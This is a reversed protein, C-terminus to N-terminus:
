GILNVWVRADFTSTAGSITYRVQLDDAFGVNRITGAGANNTIITSNNAKFAKETFEKAKEPQGARKLTKSIKGIIGFVNGDTGTLRCEPKIGNAM